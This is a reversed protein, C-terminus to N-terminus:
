SPQQAAKAFSDYSTDSTGIDMEGPAGAIAPLDAGLDPAPRAPANPDPEVRFPNVKSGLARLLAATDRQSEEATKAAAEDIGVRRRSVVAGDMDKAAKLLSNIYEPNAEQAIAKQITKIAGMRIGQTYRFTSDMDLVDVDPVPEVPPPTVIAQAQQDIAPYQGLEDSDEDYNSM